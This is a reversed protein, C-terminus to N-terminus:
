GGLRPALRAPSCLFAVAVNVALAAIALLSAPGLGFEPDDHFLLIAPGLTRDGARNALLLAPAINTAALCATLALRRLANTRSWASALRHARTWGAGALVASAIGDERAQDSGWGGEWAALLTPITALWVGVAPLVLRFADSAVVAAAQRAILFVGRPSGGDLTEVALGALWPLCLAAVGLALPPAFGAHLLASLWKSAASSSASPLSRALRGSVAFLLCVGAGLWASRGLLSGVAPDFLRGALSGVGVSAQDQISELFLALIPLGAFALWLGAALAGIAGRRRSGVRMPRGGAAGLSPEPGAWGSLAARAVISVAVAILALVAIRPFPDDRLGNVIIQYGLTRRLGLIMPAGPDAVTLVFVLGASRALAPRVLPWNLKRWVRGRSGGVLRAADRWAPDLRRLASLCSLATISGGQVLASWCWAYWGWDSPVFRGVRGLRDVWDM